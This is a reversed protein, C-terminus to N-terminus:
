KDLVPVGENSADRDFSQMPANERLRSLAAVQAREQECIRKDRQCVMLDGHKVAGGKVPSWGKHLKKDVTRRDTNVFRYEVDKREEVGHERLYHSANLPDHNIFNWDVGLTIGSPQDAKAEQEAAVRELMEKAGAQLATIEEKLTAAETDITVKKRPM